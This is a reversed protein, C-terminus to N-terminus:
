FRSKLLLAQETRDLVPVKLGEYEILFATVVVVVM